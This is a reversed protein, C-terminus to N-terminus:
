GMATDDTLKRGLLEDLPVSKYKTINDFTELLKDFIHEETTIITSEFRNGRTLNQSTVVSVKKGSASLALLIKSHNDTMFSTDYVASIFKWLKLTKLTAKHDIILHAERIKGSKRIFYIRRLFEESVSFTTQWIESPGIQDVINDIIDAVQLRETLMVQIPNHEVPAILRKGPAGDSRLSDETIIM